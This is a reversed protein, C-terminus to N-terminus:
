RQTVEGDITFTLRHTGGPELVVVDTGSNFADPPCTMPEVAAAVRGVLDGSYIQLWPADAHLRSVVTGDSSTLSVEWEGAPLGTYAHDVQAAGLVRGGRYDLGEDEVPALAVPHLREDVTLVRAAPVDLTCGDVPELGCTLYPHSSAGYPAAAGGVNTAAITVELGDASLRYTVESRLHFPYGYRPLVDAALVVEEGSSSVVAYDTFCMLGHLACGTAHESVPLEHDQGAFSYTGGVIRNPWPVLTKGAYSPALEDDAVPLVLDTGDLTLRALAAGVTHVVAEYRGASLRVATGGPNPLDSM